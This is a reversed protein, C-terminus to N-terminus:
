DECPFSSRSHQPRWWKIEMLEQRMLARRTRTLFATERLVKHSVTAWAAHSQTTQSPHPLSSDCVEWLGDYLRATEPLDLPSSQLGWPERAPLWTTFPPAPPPLLFLLSSAFRALKTGTKNTLKRSIGKPPKWFSLHYPLTQSPLPCLGPIGEPPLLWYVNPKNSRRYQRQACLGSLDPM